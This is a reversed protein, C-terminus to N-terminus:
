DEKEVNVKVSASVEPHLKIEVIHEGLSKIPEGLLITRKDVEINQEKLAAEIDMSTVSGFLKDEEGAKRTFALTVAELEKRRVEAGEKLKAVKKLLEEKEAEFQRLNGRTAEVAIGKPILYNRAYGDAVSVVEGLSGLKSVEEKLIIKM